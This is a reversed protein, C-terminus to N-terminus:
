VSRKCPKQPNKAKKGLFRDLIELRSKIDDLMKSFSYLFRSIRQFDHDHLKTIGLGKNKLRKTM